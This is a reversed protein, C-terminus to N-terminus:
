FHLDDDNAIDSEVQAEAQAPTAPTYKADTWVTKGNGLYIKPTKSEREEKSQSISISTDQGYKNEEDNIGITIELYKAGNKFPNGDKDTTKIKSKDIKTLDISATIIRAM